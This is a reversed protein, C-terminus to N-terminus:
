GSAINEGNSGESLMSHNRGETSQLFLHLMECYRAQLWGPFHRQLMICLHVAHHASTFLYEQQRSVLLCKSTGYNWFTNSSVGHEDPMSVDEGDGEQEEHLLEDDDLMQEEEDEDVEEVEEYDEFDQEEYHDDEEEVEQDEEDDDDHQEDDDEEECWDSESSADYYDEPQEQHEM